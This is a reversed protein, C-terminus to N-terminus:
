RVLVTLVEHPSYPLVIGGDEVTVEDLEDELANALRAGSFPVGLRVRAVGRGGFPEYLRLV